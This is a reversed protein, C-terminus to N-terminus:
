SPPPPAPLSAEASLLSPLPEVVALVTALLSATAATQASPCTAGMILVVIVIILPVRQM